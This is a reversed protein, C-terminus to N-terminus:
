YFVGDPVWSFGSNPLTPFFAYYRSRLGRPRHAGSPTQAHRSGNLRREGNQMRESAGFYLSRAFASRVLSRRVIVSRALLPGMAQPPTPNPTPILRGLRDSAELFSESCGSGARM